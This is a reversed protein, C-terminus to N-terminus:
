PLPPIEPDYRMADEITVGAVGPHRAVPQYLPSGYYALVALSKVGKFLNRKLAWRSGMLERLVADRGAGDLGTFPRLKAVLPYIGFELALLAQGLPDALAPARALYADARAGPDVRGARIAERGRAGVIRETAAGVVAYARPSLVQLSVGPRPERGSPADHCGPVLGAAGALGVLRLFGRRDLAALSQELAARPGAERM